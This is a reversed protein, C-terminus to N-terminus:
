IVVARVSQGKMELETFSRVIAVTATIGGPPTGVSGGLGLIKLNYKEPKIMRASEHLRQWQVAVVDETHVDHFRELKLKEVLNDISKELQVSGVMRSGFKDVFHALEDYAKGTFLPTFRRSCFVFLFLHM